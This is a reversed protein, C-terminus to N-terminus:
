RHTSYNSTQTMVQVTPDVYLCHGPTLFLDGLILVSQGTKGDKTHERVLIARELRTLRYLCLSAVIAAYVSVTQIIAITM